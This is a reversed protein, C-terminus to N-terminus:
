IKWGNNCGRGVFVCVCVCVCVIESVEGKSDHIMSLVNRDINHCCQTHDWERM